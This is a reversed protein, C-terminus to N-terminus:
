VTFMIATSRGSMSADCGPSCAVGDDEGSAPGRAAGGTFGDDVPCVPDRGVASTASRESSYIASCAVGFIRGRHQQQQQQSLQISHQVLRLQQIMEQIRQPELQKDLLLPMLDPPPANAEPSGGDLPSASDDVMKAALRRLVAEMDRRQPPPEATVTATRDVETVGPSRRRGDFAAEAGLPLEYLKFPPSKRKSSM